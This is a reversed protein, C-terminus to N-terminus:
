VVNGTVVCTTSNVFFITALGRSYLFVESRDADIGAIYATAISMTINTSANTNNFVVVADGSSFVNDPVNISGYTIVNGNQSSGVAVVKSRDSLALTYATTKDTGSQPLGLYVTAALNVNAGDNFVVQTTSPAVDIGTGTSNKVTIPFSLTNNVIYQKEIAPVILEHTANATGVLNLRLNRATQSANTDTLTLTVSANAFTVNASGTIAEEIATGLNTNTTTGWTGAQDGSGILEIKLNSYTSPM